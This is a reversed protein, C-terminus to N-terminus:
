DGACRFGVFPYRGGAPLLMRGPGGDAVTGRVVAGSDGSPSRAAAPAMTWESIGAVLSLGPVESGSALRRQMRGRQSSDTCDNAIGAQRGNDRGVVDKFVRDARIQGVSQQGGQQGAIVRAATLVHFNCRAVHRRM